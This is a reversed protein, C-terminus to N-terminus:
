VHYAVYKGQCPTGACIHLLGREPEAILSATTSRDPPPEHRCLSRPYGEHDSLFEQMMPVTLRGCAGKVLAYLQEYRPVSDALLPPFEPRNAWAPTVFHNTHVVFGESTDMWFAGEPTLECDGIEGSADCSVLNEAQAIVTEDCLARVGDLSTQQFLRWWFAYLPMGVSYKGRPMANAFNCVGAANMGLYSTLGAFTMTLLAPSDDPILHLVVLVDPEVRYDWNQGALVCGNSTAQRSLAFASCGTLLGFVAESRTQLILVEEFPLRAGESIGRLEDLLLPCQEEFMPVYRQASALIEERSWLRTGPTVRSVWERNLRPIEGELIQRIGLPILDRLAEGVQLGIAYRSGHAEIYPFQNAM